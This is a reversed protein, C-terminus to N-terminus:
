RLINQLTSCTLASCLVFLAVKLPSESSSSVFCEVWRLFHDCAFLIIINNAECKYLYIGLTSFDFFTYVSLIILTDTLTSLERVSFKM